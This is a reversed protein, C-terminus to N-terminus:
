LGGSKWYSPGAPNTTTSSDQLEYLRMTAKDYRYRLNPSMDFRKRLRDAIKKMEARKEKLVLAFVRLEQTVLQRANTLKVFTQGQERDSLRRHVRKDMSTRSDGQTQTSEAAPSSQEAAATRNTAPVLEYLTLTDSEYYYNRKPHIRFDAALDRNFQARERRKEQTLRALVIIEQAVGHRTRLLNILDTEDQKSTIVRHLLERSSSNDSVKNTPDTDKEDSSGFWFARSPIVAGALLMAVILLISCRYM